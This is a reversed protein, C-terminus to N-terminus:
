RFDDLSDGLPGLAPKNLKRYTLANGTPMRIAAVTATLAIVPQGQLLWCLGTCDYRSLRRYSPHPKAPPEHLGFLDAETWGLAAAQEGWQALFRKADTVCQQWRAQEIYDPCRRELAALAAAFPSKIIKLAAHADFKVFAPRAPKAHRPDRSQQSPSHSILSNHSILSPAVGRKESVESKECSVPGSIATSREAFEASKARERAAQREQERVARRFTELYNPITM